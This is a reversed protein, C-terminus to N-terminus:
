FVEGVDTDEDSGTGHEGEDSLRRLRDVGHIEGPDPTQDLSFANSPDAVVVVGLINLYVGIMGNIKIPEVDKPLKGTRMSFLVTVVTNPEIVEDYKKAWYKSLM